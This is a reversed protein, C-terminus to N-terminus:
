GWTLQPLVAVQHFHVSLCMKCQVPHQWPPQAQFLVKIRWSAPSPDLRVCPPDLFVWCKQATGAFVMQGKALLLGGVLGSLRRCDTYKNEPFGFVLPAPSSFLELRPLILKSNLRCCAARYEVICLNVLIAMCVSVSM